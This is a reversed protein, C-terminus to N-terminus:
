TGVYRLEFSLIDNLGGPETGSHWGEPLNKDPSEFSEWLTIPNGNAVVLPNLNRVAKAQTTASNRLTVEHVKIKEPAVQGASLSRTRAYCM